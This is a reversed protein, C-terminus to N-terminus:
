KMLYQQREQMLKSLFEILVKVKPSLYRRHPYLVSIDISHQKYQPLIEILRGANIDEKALFLPLNVIGQGAKTMQLLAYGNNSIVHANPKIKVKQDGDTFQWQQHNEYILCTHETLQELNEPTGQKALYDPSAILVLESRAIRKAVISSDELTGIRLVLDYGEAVVDVRRDSFEINLQINPYTTMFQGLYPAVFRSGFDMPLSITIKGQLTSTINSVSDEADKLENLIPLCRQYYLLGAETPTIKRTTRHLLRVNLHEELQAILKSAMALSIQELQAAQTFSQTEIVRCFLNIANLKDM